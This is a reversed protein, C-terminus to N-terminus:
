NLEKILLNRFEVHGDHSQVGLHGKTRLIGPHEKALDKYNDVNADVVKTGNIVVTIQRGRATIQMANWEGPPKIAEKSPPVVGYISGTLQVRRMGKYNKPNLNWPDDLIQIEIGTHSLDGRLPARLAVGSNGKPPLKYELRLEFDDYEKETMLWFPQAREGPRSRAPKAVYLLGDKVGWADITCGYTKWGTLDKGNFLPTFGAPVDRDGALRSQGALSLLSLLSFLAFGRLM